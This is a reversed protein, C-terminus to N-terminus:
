PPVRLDGGKMSVEASGRAGASCGRLVRAGAGLGLCVGWLLLESEAGLAARQLPSVAGLEWSPVCPVLSGREAGRGGSHNSARRSVRAAITVLRCGRADVGRESDRPLLRPRAEPRRVEPGLTM